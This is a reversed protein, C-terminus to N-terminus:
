ASPAGPAPAPKRPRWFRRSLLLFVVAMISGWLLHVEGVQPSPLPLLMALLQGFGFGVVGAVLDRWAQRWGGGRWLTFLAGYVLGLLISLWLAPSLAVDLALDMYREV